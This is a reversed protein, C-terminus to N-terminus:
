ILQPVRVPVPMGKLHRLKHPIEDPVVVVMQSLQILRKLDALQCYM